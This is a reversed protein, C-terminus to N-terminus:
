TCSSNFALLKCCVSFGYFDVLSRFALNSQAVLHMLLETTSGGAKLLRPVEHRRDHRHAPEMVPGHPWVGAGRSANLSWLNGLPANVLQKERNDARQGQGSVIPRTSVKRPRAPVRRVQLDPAKLFTRIDM